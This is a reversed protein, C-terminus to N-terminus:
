RPDACTEIFFFIRGGKERAHTYFINTRRRDPRLLFFDSPRKRSFAISMTYM